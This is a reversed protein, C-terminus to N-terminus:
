VTQFTKSVISWRGGDNLLQFYNVFSAQGFFGSEEVRASAVRGAVHIGAVEYEYPAGTEAMAPRSGIDTFFSEPSGVILQDGLYGAM